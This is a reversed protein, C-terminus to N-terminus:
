AAIHQVDQAAYTQGLLEPDQYVTTTLTGPLLSDPVIMRRSVTLHITGDDTTELGPQITGEHGAGTDPGAIWNLNGTRGHGTEDQVFRIHMGVPVDAEFSDGDIVIRAPNATVTIEAM